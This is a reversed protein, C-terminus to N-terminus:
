LGGIAPLQLRCAIDAATAPAIGLVLAASALLALLTTLSTFQRRM